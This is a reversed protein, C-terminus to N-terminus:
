QSPENVLTERSTAVHVPKKADAATEQNQERRTKCQGRVGRIRLTRRGRHFIKGVADFRLPLFKIEPLGLGVRWRGPPRLGRHHNLHAVLRIISPESIVRIEVRANRHCGDIVPEDILRHLLFYLRGYLRRTHRPGRVASSESSLWPTSCRDSVCRSTPREAPAHVDRHSANWSSKALELLLSGTDRSDVRKCHTAKFAAVSRAQDSLIRSHIGLAIYPPCAKPNAACSTRSGLLKFQQNGVPFFHQRPYFFIEGM